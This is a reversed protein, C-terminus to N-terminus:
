VKYSTSPKVTRLFIHYSTQITYINIDYSYYERITIRTNVRQQKFLCKTIIFM